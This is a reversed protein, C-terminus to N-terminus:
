YIPPSLVDARMQTRIESSPILGSLLPQDPRGLRGSEPFCPPGGRMWCFRIRVLTQHGSCLASPHRGGGGECGGAPSVPSLASGRRHRLWPLAPLPRAMPGQSPHCLQFFERSAARHSVCLRATAQSVKQPTFDAWCLAGWPMLGM